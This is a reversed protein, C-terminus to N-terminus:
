ARRSDTASAATAAGTGRPSPAECAHTCDCRLRMLRVFSRNTTSCAVVISRDISNAVCRARCLGAAATTTAADTGRATPAEM